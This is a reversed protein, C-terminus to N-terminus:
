RSHTYSHVLAGFTPRSGEFDKPTAVFYFKVANTNDFLWVGYATMKSDGQGYDGLASVAPEGAATLEQWSNTRVQLDALVKTARAIDEEAWARPSQRANGDLNALRGVEAECYSMLGPNLMRLTVETRPNDRVTSLLRAQDPNLLGAQTLFDMLAKTQSGAYRDFVWDAPATLSFGFEPDQYRVPGGARRLNIAALEAIGPMGDMEFKVLYRHSDTCYWLTQHTSLKVKFCDYTGAPVQVKEVGTVQLKWPALFRDGSSANLGANFLSGSYNTALPLRRILQFTEENDYAAEPWEPHKAEAAGRVRIEAGNRLYGTDIDTDWNGQWRSRLPRMTQADVEVRSSAEGLPGFCGWRLGLRWLKLGNTEGGDVTLTVSGYKLGTASKLELRLEEGDVWPAPLLPRARFLYDGAQAALEKQEPFDRVLQEFAAIAAASDKKKYYCVGLRFQAQSAVARAAKAETVAQKYFQLAADLDGKTEEAYIGQELLESPSAARGPPAVALSVAIALLLTM